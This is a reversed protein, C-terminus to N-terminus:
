ASTAVFNGKARGANELFSSLNAQAGQVDNEALAAQMDSVFRQLPRTATYWPTANESSASQSNSIKRSIQNLVAQAQPVDGEQVSQILSLLSKGMASADLSRQGYNGSYSDSQGQLRELDSVESVTPTLTGTDSDSQLQLNNRSVTEASVSTKKSSESKDEYLSSYDTENQSATERATIASVFRPFEESSSAQSTSRKSGITAPTISQNL